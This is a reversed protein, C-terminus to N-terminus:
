GWELPVRTCCTSIAAWYGGQTKTRKQSTASRSPWLAPGMFNNPNGQGNYTNRSEQATAFQYDFEQHWDGFAIASVEEMFHNRNSDLRHESLQNTQGANHVITVSDTARNVVWLENQRSPSPHFELDRPVDLNDSVSAIETEAFGPGFQTIYTDPQSMNQEVSTATSVQGLIGFLFIGVLLISIKGSSTKSESM